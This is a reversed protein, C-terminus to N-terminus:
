PVGGLPAALGRIVEIANERYVSRLVPEPLHLGHIRWRCHGWRGIYDPYEFYEDRTELFRFYARYIDARVPMDTGFLIRDQYRIFFDRASYPQRGLEDMRASFDIWVNPHADLLRSVYALDEPYNAVHACIFRTGPHAAIVRDRQAILEDKAYTSGQFSWSPFEELTTRHENTEDATLFFGLPDSVHILVPLDLEGARRWIPFLREDDVRLMAGDNDQFRLGLEKTVKLGLAGARVDAELHQICLDVWREGKGGPNGASRFLHFDDWRAFDAMTLAAFRGPHPKVHSALYESLPRPKISYGGVGFPMSVNGTVNVFLEVGAADMEALMGLAPVDGFLHNHADIVPYRAREIVTEPRRLLPRPAIGDAPTV